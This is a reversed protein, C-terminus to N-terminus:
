APVVRSLTTVIQAEVGSLAMEARRNVRSRALRRLQQVNNGIAGLEAVLRRTERKAPDATARPPVAKLQDQLKACLAVLSGEVEIRKSRNCLKALDNLLVGTEVLEGIAKVLARHHAERASGGARYARMGNLLLERAFETPTLGQARAAVGIGGHDTPTLQVLLRASLREGEYEKRHRAM